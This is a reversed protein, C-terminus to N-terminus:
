GDVSQWHGCIRRDASDVGSTYSLELVVGLDILSLINSGWLYPYPLPILLFNMFKFLQCCFYLRHYIDYQSSCCWGDHGNSNVLM